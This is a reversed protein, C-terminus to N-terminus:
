IGRTHERCDEVVLTLQRLGGPSVDLVHVPAEEVGVRALAHVECVLHSSICASLVVVVSSSDVCGNRTNGRMSSILRRARGEEKNVTDCHFTRRFPMRVDCDPAVCLSLSSTLQLLCHQMNHCNLMQSLSSARESDKGRTFQKALTINM